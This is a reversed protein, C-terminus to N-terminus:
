IMNEFEFNVRAPFFSRSYITVIQNLFIVFLCAILTLIEDVFILDYRRVWLKDQCSFFLTFIYHRNPGFFLSCVRLWTALLTIVLIPGTYIYFLDRCIPHLKTNTKM